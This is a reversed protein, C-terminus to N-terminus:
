THRLPRQVMQTTAARAHARASAIRACAPLRHRIGVMKPLIEAIMDPRGFLISEDTYDNLAQEASTCAKFPIPTDALRTLEEVYEEATATVILCDPM